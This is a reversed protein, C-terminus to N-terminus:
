LARGVKNRFKTKYLGIKDFPIQKFGKTFAPSNKL